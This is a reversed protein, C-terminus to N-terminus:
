EEQQEEDQKKEESKFHPLPYRELPAFPLSWDIKKITPLCPPLNIMPKLGDLPGPLDVPRMQVGLAELAKFTPSM